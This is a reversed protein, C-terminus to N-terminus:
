GLIDERDAAGQQWYYEQFTRSLESCIKLIVGSLGKDRKRKSHRLYGCPLGEEPEFVFGPRMRATRGPQMLGAAQAISDPGRLRVIFWQFILIWGGGRDVPYQCCPVAAQGTLDRKNGELEAFSPASVYFRKLHNKRKM